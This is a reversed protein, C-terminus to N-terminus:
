LNNHRFCYGVSRINEINCPCEPIDELKRRIRRVCSHISNETSMQGSDWVMEFLQEYTFVRGPCAALLSFIEFELSTFKVETGHIFVKRYNEHILVGGRLIINLKGCPKNLITFRRLLAQCSAEFEQITDPWQIYEDAGARIVDVKEVGSYKERLVIIPANTLIRITQIYSLKDAHHLLIAVLLYEKRAALTDIAEPLTPLSHISLGFDIYTQKVYELKPNDFGVMLVWKEMCDEMVLHVISVAYVGAGFALLGRWEEACKILSLPLQGSGFVSSVRLAKPIPESYNRDIIKYWDSIYLSTKSM